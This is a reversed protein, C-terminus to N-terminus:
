KNRLFVLILEKMELTQMKNLLPPPVESPAATTASAPAVTTTQPTPSPPIASTTAFGSADKTITIGGHDLDALPVNKDDTTTTKTGEGLKSCCVFDYPNSVLFSTFCFFSSLLTFM